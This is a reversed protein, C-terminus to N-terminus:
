GGRTLELTLELRQARRESEERLRISRWSAAIHDTVHQMLAADFRDFRDRGHDWVELAAVARGDVIVPVVLLSHVPLPRPWDFRPDSQADGLLIPEKAAIAAGVIGAELPRRVREPEHQERTLDAILLQERTEEIALTAAVVEYTSNEFVTHAAIALAESPTRAEPLAAAVASGVALRAARHGSEEVAFTRMLAAGTQAAIAQMLDVDGPGFADPRTDCLELVAECRGNVMVPALLLSQYVTGDPWDFGPEDAARAFLQVSGQKAAHGVLGADIPRRLGTHQRLSRSRDAVIVQEGADHDILTATVSQYTSHEFIADVSAALADSASLALATGSSVTQALELRQSRQASDAAVRLVTEALGALHAFVLREAKSFAPAERSPEVPLMGPRGEVMPVPSILLRSDVGGSPPEEGPEIAVREADLGTRFRELLLELGAVTDPPEPDDM